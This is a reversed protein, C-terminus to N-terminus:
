GPTTNNVECFSRLYPYSRFRVKTHDKTGTLIAGDKHEACHPVEVSVTTSSTVGITSQTVASSANTTTLSAPINQTSPKGCVCCVQPFSFKEPLPSSFLPSDAIRSDDTAWLEGNKGEFYHHCHSCLVGDNSGTSLGGLPKACSPCSTEGAGAIAMYLCILAVITPITAIAFTILGSAFYLYLLVAIGGSVVSALLYTFTSKWSRTISSKTSAAM